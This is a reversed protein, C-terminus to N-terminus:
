NVIMIEKERKEDEVVQQIVAEHAEIDDLTIYNIASSM